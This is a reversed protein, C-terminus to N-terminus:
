ATDFSCSCVEERVIRQAIADKLGMRFVGLRDNPPKRPQLFARGRFGILSSIGILYLPYSIM